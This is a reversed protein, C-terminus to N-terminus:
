RTPHPLARAGTGIQYQKGLNEVRIAFDSM